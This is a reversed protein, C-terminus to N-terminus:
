FSCWAPWGKKIRRTAELGSMGPMAVDMIVVHPSCGQLIRLAELGDATEGVVQIDAQTEVIARLADRLPTHDDVLLVRIVM